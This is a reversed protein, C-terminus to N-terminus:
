GDLALEIVALRGARHVAVTRLGGRAATLECVGRERGGFYALMRLDM